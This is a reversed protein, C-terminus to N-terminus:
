SENMIAGVIRVNMSGLEEMLQKADAASTENKKTILLAAGANAAIVRSDAGHSAAPTDIIVTDFKACLETLLMGFAPRQVLEMPNPPQVGVPLLYLNPLEQIPRIVSIETRGSLVTSLGAMNPDVDFLEHQRPTRMDADVLVTRGGLQSFAIALNAAFFSKGDGVNPSVVALARRADPGSFASNMLKSRLGRFLEAAQSFPTTALVLEPNVRESIENAYPYDFQQSLAWLVDEKKVIGLEVAAEGFKMPSTRQYALIKEVQEASLNYSQRFIEGISKDSSDTDSM